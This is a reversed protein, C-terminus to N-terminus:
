ASQCVGVGRPPAVFEVVRSDLFTRVTRQDGGNGVRVDARGASHSLSHRLQHEDGLWGGLFGGKASRYALVACELAWGAM